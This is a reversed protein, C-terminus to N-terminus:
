DFFTRRSENPSADGEGTNNSAGKSPDDSPTENEPRSIRWVKNNLFILGEKKLRSLQPSISTRPVDVGFKDNIIKIIKLADAGDPSDNLADIALDKITLKRGDQSVRRLINRGANRPGSSTPTSIAAEAVDLEGLELHLATLSDRAAELKKDLSDVTAQEDDLLRQLEARQEKIFERLSNNM